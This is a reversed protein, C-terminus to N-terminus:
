AAAAELGSIIEQLELLSHYGNLGIGAGPIVILPTEVVGAQVCTESKARCDVTVLQDWFPGFQLQQRQSEEDAPDYYIVAELQNLSTAVRGSLPAPDSTRAALLMIEVLLALSAIGVVWVARSTFRPQKDM